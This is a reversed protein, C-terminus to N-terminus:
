YQGKRGKEEKGCGKDNKKNKLVRNAHEVEFRRPAILAKLMDETNSFDDTMDMFKLLTTPRKRVLEAM